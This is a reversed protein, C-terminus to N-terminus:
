ATDTDGRPDEQVGCNRPVVYAIKGYENILTANANLQGIRSATIFDITKKEGSRTITFVRYRMM